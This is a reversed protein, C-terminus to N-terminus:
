NAAKEQEAQASAMTTETFERISKLKTLIRDATAVPSNQTRDTVDDFEFAEPHWGHTVFFPSMRTSRSERSCIAAIAVPLRELWDDQAWGILGRLTTEIVENARETSGDTEPSFATSLRRQIGLQDCM